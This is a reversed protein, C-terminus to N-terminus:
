ISKYNQLHPGFDAQVRSSERPKGTEEPAGTATSVRPKERTRAERIADHVPIAIRLCNRAHHTDLDM